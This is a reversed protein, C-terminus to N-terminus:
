PLDNYFSIGDLFVSLSQGSGIVPTPNIEYFIGSTEGQAAASVRVSQYPDNNLRYGGINVFTRTGYGLPLSAILSDYPNGNTIALGRLHIFGDENQKWQPPNFASGVPFPFWKPELVLNTWPTAARVRTVKTNVTNTLTNLQIQLTTLTNSLEQIAQVRAEIEGALGDTLVDDAAKRTAAESANILPVLRQSTGPNFLISPGGGATRSAKAPSTRYSNQVAGNAYTRTELVDLDPVIHFPFAGSYGPFYRLENNLWVYGPTVVVNGGFPNGGNSTTCGSVVFSAGVTGYLAYISRYVEDQLNLLDEVTFPFGGAPLPSLLKKM